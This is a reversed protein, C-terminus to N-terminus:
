WTTCNVTAGFKNCTTQVPRHANMSDGWKKLAGNIDDALKRKRAREREQDQADLLALEFSREMSKCDFSGKNNYAYARGNRYATRESDTMVKDKKWELAMHTYEAYQHATLDNACIEIQAVTQGVFNAEETNETHTLSQCGTLASLLVGAIILKKM